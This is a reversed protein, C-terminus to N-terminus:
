GASVEREGGERWKGMVCRRRRGRGKGKGLVFGM